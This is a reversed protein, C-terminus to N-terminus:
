FGNIKNWHANTKGLPFSPSFHM